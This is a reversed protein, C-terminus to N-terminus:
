VGGELVGVWAGDGGRFQGVNAAVQIYPVTDGGDICVVGTVHGM